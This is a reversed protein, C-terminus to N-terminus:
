LYWELWYFYLLNPMGHKLEFCSDKKLLHLFKFHKLLAQKLLVYVLISLYVWHQFISLFYKFYDYDKSHNNWTNISQYTLRKNNNTIIIMIIIMFLLLYYIIIFLLWLYYYDYILMLFKLSFTIHLLNIMYVRPNIRGWPHSPKGQPETTFSRGALLPSAPEIKQDPLDGPSPFLLGRWYEQRSFGM